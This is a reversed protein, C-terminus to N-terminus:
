SPQRSKARGHIYDAIRVFDAVSLREGREGSDLSLQLYDDPDLWPRLTNRLTKRRQGFAATVLKSMLEPDACNLESFPHPRMYVIASTVKPAPSFASGPVDFLSAM